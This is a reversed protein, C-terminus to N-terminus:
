RTSAILQIHTDLGAKLRERRRERRTIVVLRERADQLRIAADSIAREAAEVDLLASHEAPTMVRPQAM